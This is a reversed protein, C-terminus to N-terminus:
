ARGRLFLLQQGALRPDQPELGVVLVNRVLIDVSLHHVVGGLGQHYFVSTRRGVKEGAKREGGRAAASVNPSTTARTSSM